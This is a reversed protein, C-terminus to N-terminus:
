NLRYAVLCSYDGVAGDLVQPQNSSLLATISLFRAAIEVTLKGSTAVEPSSRSDDVLDPM